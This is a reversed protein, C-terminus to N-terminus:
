VGPQIVGAGNGQRQKHEGGTPEFRLPRVRQGDRDGYKEIKRRHRDDRIREDVEANQRRFGAKRVNKLLVTDQNKFQQVAKDRVRVEIQVGKKGNQVEKEAEECPGHLTVFRRGKCPAYGAGRLIRRLSFLSVRVEAFHRLGRRRKRGAGENETRARTKAAPSCARRMVGARLAEAECGSGSM